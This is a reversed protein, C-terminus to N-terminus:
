WLPQQPSPHPPIHESHCRAPKQASCVQQSIGKEPPATLGKDGFAREGRPAQPWTLSSPFLAGTREAGEERLKGQDQQQEQGEM